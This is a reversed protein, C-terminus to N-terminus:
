RGGRALLVLLTHGGHAGVHRPWRRSGAAEGVDSQVGQIDVRLGEPERESEGHEEGEEAREGELWRVGGGGSNAM